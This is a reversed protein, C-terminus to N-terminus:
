RSGAPGCSVTLYFTRSDQAIQDQLHERSGPDGYRADLLNRVDLGATLGAALRRSV